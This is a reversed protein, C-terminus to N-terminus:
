DAYTFWLIQQKCTRQTPQFIAKGPTSGSENEGAKKEKIEKEQM